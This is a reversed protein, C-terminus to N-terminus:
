GQTKQCFISKLQLKQKTQRCFLVGSEQITNTYHPSPNKGITTEFVVTVPFTNFNEFKLYSYKGGAKIESVEVGGVDDDSCIGAIVFACRTRKQENTNQSFGVVAFLLLYGIICLKKM